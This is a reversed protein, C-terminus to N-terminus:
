RPASDRNAWTSQSMQGNRLAFQVYTIAGAAADVQISGTEPKGNVGVTVTVSHSAPLVNSRYLEDVAGNALAGSAVASYHREVALGNDIAVNVSDISQRSTSSDARFIVVLEAGARRRVAEGLSLFRDRQALLNDQSVTLLSDLQRLAYTERSMMLTNARQEAAKSAVAEVRAELQLREVRLQDLKQQSGKIDKLIEQRRASYSRSTTDGTSADQAGLPRGSLLAGGLVAGCLVAARVAGACRTIV